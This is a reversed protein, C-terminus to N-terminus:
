VSRHRKWIPPPSLPARWRPQIAPCPFRALSMARRLEGVYSKEYTDIVNGQAASSGGFNTRASGPEVLTVQIGFPTVEPIVSEFFGEIGWKTAHYLSLTPFAIQGGM